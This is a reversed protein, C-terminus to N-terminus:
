HLVAPDDTFLACLERASLKYYASFAMAEALRELQLNEATRQPFVAETGAHGPPYLLCGM